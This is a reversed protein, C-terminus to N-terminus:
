LRQDLRLWKILFAIQLLSFGTISIWIGVPGFEAYAAVSTLLELWALGLLVVVFKVDRLM